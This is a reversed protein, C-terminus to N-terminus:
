STGGATSKWGNTLSDHFKQRSTPEDKSKNMMDKALQIHSDKVEGKKEEEEEDEAEKKEMEMDFMADIYAASKDSYDKDKKSDSLAARKIEVPDSSDCTFERGALTKANEMAKSISSVREKLVSDSSKKKMEENEEEAADKEAQLKDAKEKGEHVEDMLRKICDEVQAAAADEIEVARGNDLTVKMLKVELKNDFIRAASGARANDVLAVHNIKIDRQVFEYKKGDSTVGPENAYEATYGASLEAKGSEILKIADADKFILDIQVYDGDRTGASVVVGTTVKKYNESDVLKPPHDDTTDVHEYSDLSAPKFVEDAPRFVSVIRNPDGVLELEGATYDQVGTRAARGSVKLFGEDTYERSSIKYTARDFLTIKM